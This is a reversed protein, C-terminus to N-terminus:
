STESLMRKHESLEWNFIDITRKRLMAWKQEEYRQLSMGIEEIAALIKEVRGDNYCETPKANYRLVHRVRGEVPGDEMFNWYMPPRIENMFRRKKIHSKAVEEYQDGDKPLLRKKNNIREQHDAEIFKEIDKPKM